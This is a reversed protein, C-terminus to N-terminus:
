LQHLLMHESCELGTMTRTKQAHRCDASKNCQKYRHFACCAPAAQAHAHTHSSKCKLARQPPQKDGPEGFPHLQRQSGQNDDRRSEYCLSQASDVGSHKGAWGAFWSVQNCGVACQAYFMDIAAAHSHTITIGRSQTQLGAACMLACCFAGFSAHM